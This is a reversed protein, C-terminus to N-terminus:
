PHIVKFCPISALSAHTSPMTCSFYEDKNEKPNTSQSNKMESAYVLEDFNCMTDSEDKTESDGSYWAEVDIIGM